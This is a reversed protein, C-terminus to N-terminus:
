GGEEEDVKKRQRDDLRRREDGRKRKYVRDDVRGIMWGKGKIWRKREVM